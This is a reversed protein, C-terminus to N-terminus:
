NQVVVEVVQEVPELGCRGYTRQSRSEFAESSSRSEIMESIYMQTTGDGLDEGVIWAFPPIPIEFMTVIGDIRDDERRPPAQPDFTPRSVGGM